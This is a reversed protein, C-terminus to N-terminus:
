AHRSPAGFSRWFIRKLTRHLAASMLRLLPAVEAALSRFRTISRIREAPPGDDYEALQAELLNRIASFPDQRAQECVAVICRHTGRAAALFVDILSTKGSGAVGRVVVLQSQGTTSARLASRLRLLEKQRGVLRVASRNSNTGSDSPRRQPAAADNGLASLDRALARADPYSDETDLLLRRLLKALGASLQPYLGVDSGSRELIPRPDIEAPPTAGTACQFLVAGLARLDASIESPPKTSFGGSSTGNQRPLSAPTADTAFGFDILRVSNTISDFLINTVSIDRHALGAGHIEALADALQVGLEAVRSEPFPGRHLRERLTEGAVLEMIM